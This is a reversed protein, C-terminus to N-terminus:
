TEIGSNGGSIDDILQGSPPQPGQAVPATTASQRDHLAEGGKLDVASAMREHGRGLQQGPQLKPGINM